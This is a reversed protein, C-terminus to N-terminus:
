FRATYTLGIVATNNGTTFLRDSRVYLFDLARDLSCFGMDIHAVDSLVCACFRAVRM